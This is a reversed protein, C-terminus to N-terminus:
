ALPSNVLDRVEGSLTADSECIEAWLARCSESDAAGMEMVRVGCDQLYRLCRESAYAYMTGADRIAIAAQLCPPAADATVACYRVSEVDSLHCGVWQAAAGEDGEGSEGGLARMVLHDKEVLGPEWQVLQPGRWGDVSFGVFIAHSTM